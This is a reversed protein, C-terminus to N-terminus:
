APSSLHVPLPHTLLIRAGVRSCLRGCAVAEVLSLIKGQPPRHQLSASVTVEQGSPCPNRDLASADHQRGSGQLSVCGGDGWQSVPVGGARRRAIRGPSQLTGALFQGRLVCSACHHRYSRCLGGVM